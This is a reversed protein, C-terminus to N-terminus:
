RQPPPFTTFTAFSAGLIDPGVRGTASTLPSFSEGLEIHFRLPQEANSLAVVIAQDLQLPRVAMTSVEFDRSIRDLHPQIADVFGSPRLLSRALTLVGADLTYLKTEPNFGVWGEAVLARLAIGRCSTAQAVIQRDIVTFNCEYCPGEDPVFVAVEGSGM